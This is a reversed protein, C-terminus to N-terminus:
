DRGSLRIPLCRKLSPWRMATAVANHDLIDRITQVQPLILRGKPAEADEPIVLVVMDDPVLLDGVIPPGDCEGLRSALTRISEILQAIGEGTAASVYM